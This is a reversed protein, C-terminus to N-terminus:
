ITGRMTGRYTAQYSGSAPVVSILSLTGSCTTKYENSFETYYITTPISDPNSYHKIVTKQYSITIRAVGEKIIENGNEAAFTLSSMSFLLTMSLIVAIIKKM